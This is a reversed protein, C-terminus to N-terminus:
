DNQVGVMKKVSEMYDNYENNITDLMQNYNDKNNRVFEINSKTKEIITPMSKNSKPTNLTSNMNLFENNIKELSNLIQENCTDICNKADLVTKGDYVILGM